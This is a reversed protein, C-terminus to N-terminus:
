KLLGEMEMDITIVIDDKDSYHFNFTYDSRALDYKLLKDIKPYGTGGERKINDVSKGSRLADRIMNLKKVPDKAMVEDSLNNRFELTLRHADSRVSIGIRLQDQPVGAHIVINGLLTRFIDSFYAFYKGDFEENCSNNVTPRPIRHSYVNNVSAICINILLDMKFLKVKSAGSIAFWRSIREFENQINTLCTTIRSTLESTDCQPSISRIQQNLQVLKTYVSNVTDNRIFDQIRSVNQLTRERLHSFVVDLFTNYDEITHIENIFLTLLEAQSFCYDFMGNPKRTETRVQIAQGNLFSTVEDLEKSFTVLLGQILTMEHQSMPLNQWYANPLYDGTNKDKECLLHLDQFPSRIQNELAGHRIRISLYADLGYEASLVYLDRIDYFLEMFLSFHSLTVIKTYKSLDETGIPQAKVKGQADLEYSVLISKDLLRLTELKTVSALELLRNFNEALVKESHARLGKEDVYIRGEDIERMGERIMSRETLDSIEQIYRGKNTTELGSLYQCLKLRESELDATGRIRYSNAMVDLTCVRALFIELEKSPFDKSGILQTPVSYGHATLFNDYAVYVLRLKSHFISYLIPYSLDRYVDASQEADIRQVLLGLPLSRVLLPNKIYSRVVLGACAVLDDQLLLTHFLDYIIQDDALFSGNFGHEVMDYLRKLIELTAPRDGLANSVAEQGMLLRTQPLGPPFQPQERTSIAAYIASQTAIAANQPYRSALNDLYTTAKIPDNYVRAFTPNSFCSTLAAISKWFDADPQLFMQHFAALRLGLSSGALAYATKLLSHHGSDASPRKKYVADIDRVISNSICDKDFVNPVNQGLYAASRVTMDYPEFLYPSDQLLAISERLSVDYEGLTYADLVKMLAQEVPTIPATYSPTLFRLMCDLSPDRVLQVLRTLIHQIDQALEGHRICCFQCISVFTLYRDVIPSNAEFYTLAALNLDQSWSLVDLRFQLYATFEPYEALQALTKQLRNLYNEISMKREVRTSVCDVMFTVVNTLEPTQNIQSLLRKNAELGQSYEALALRAQLSWLSYGTEAEINDLHKLASQYDAHLFASDFNARLYLFKNITAAYTEVALSCWYIDKILDGTYLTYRRRQIQGASKAVPTEYIFANFQSTKAVLAKVVSRVHEFDSSTRLENFFAIPNRKQVYIQRTFDELYKDRKLAVHKRAKHSM